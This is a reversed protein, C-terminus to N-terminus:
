EGIFICSGDNSPSVYEKKEAFQPLDARKQSLIVRYRPWVVGGSRRAKSVMAKWMM